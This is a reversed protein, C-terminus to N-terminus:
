LRGETPGPEKVTRFIEIPHGHASVQPRWENVGDIGVRAVSGM